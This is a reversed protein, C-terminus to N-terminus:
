YRALVVNSFGNYPLMNWPFKHLNVQRWAACNSFFCCPFIHYSCNVFHYATSRPWTQFIDVHGFPPDKEAMSRQNEKCYVFYQQTLDGQRAFFDRATPCMELKWVLGLRLHYKVVKRYLGYRIVNERAMCDKGTFNRANHVFSLIYGIIHGYATSFRNDRKATQFYLKQLPLGQSSLRSIRSLLFRHAAVEGGIASSFVHSQSRETCSQPHTISVSM